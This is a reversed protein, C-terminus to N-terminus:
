LQEYNGRTPNPIPLVTQWKSKFLVSIPNIQESFVRQLKVADPNCNYAKAYIQLSGATGAIKGQTISSQGYTVITNEFILLNEEPLLQVEISIEEIYVKDESDDIIENESNITHRIVNRLAETLALQLAGEERTTLSIYANQLSELMGLKSKIWEEMKDIETSAKEAEINSDSTKVLKVLAEIKGAKIASKVLMDQLNYLYLESSKGERSKGGLEKVHDILQIFYERILNIIIPPNQPNIAGAVRSMDHVAALMGEAKGKREDAEQKKYLHDSLVLLWTTRLIEQAAEEQAEGWESNSSVFNLWLMGVIGPAIQYSTFSSNNNDSSEPQTLVATPCLYLSTARKSPTKDRYLWSCIYDHCMRNQNRFSEAADQKITLQKSNARERVYDWFFKLTEQRYLSIPSFHYGRESDFKVINTIGPTNFTYTKHEYLDEVSGWCLPPSSYEGIEDRFEHYDFLYPHLFLSENNMHIKGLMNVWGELFEQMENATISSKDDFIAKGRVWCRSENNELQIDAGQMTIPIRSIVVCDFLDTYTQLVRNLREDFFVSSGPTSGKYNLGPADLIDETVLGWEIESQKKM